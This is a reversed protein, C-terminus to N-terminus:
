KTEKLHKHRIMESLFFFQFLFSLLCFFFFFFSFLSSFKSETMVTMFKKQYYRSLVSINICIFLPHLSSLCLILNLIFLLYSFSLIFLLHSLSLIFLLYLHLSSLSFNLIFFFLCDLSSLFADM